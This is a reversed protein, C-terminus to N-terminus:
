ALILEELGNIHNVVDKVKKKATGHARFVVTFKRESKMCLRCQACTLNATQAPCTVFDVGDQQWRKRTDDANTTTVTPWGLAQARKVDELTDCSANVVLNGGFPYAGFDGYRHTYTYGLVQPFDAHAMKVGKVYPEDIQDNYFFDGSVHLRVTSGIKALKKPSSALGKIFDYYAMGDFADRVADRQHMGTFSTLAYCAKSILMACTIPCTEGVKRYTAGVFGTKANGSKEVLRIGM